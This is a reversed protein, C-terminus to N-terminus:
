MLTKKVSAGASSSLESLRATANVLGLYTQWGIAAVGAFISRNRPAVFSYSFATVVPWFLCGNLWSRPLTTKVRVWAAEAKGQVTDGGDGALGSHMTFFYANLFPAFTLVNLGVKLCLSTMHPLTPWLKSLHMFWLYSPISITGGIILARVSRQSDYTFHAAPTPAQASGSSSQMQTGEATEIPPAPVPRQIYQSSLDGLFYIVLSSIFQTLYPRSKTARNYATIPYSLPKLPTWLWSPGPLHIQIPAKGPDYSASPTPSPPKSSGSIFRRQTLIKPVALTSKTRTSNRLVAETAGTRSQLVRGQLM